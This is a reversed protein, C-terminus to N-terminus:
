VDRERQEGSERLICSVPQNRMIGGVCKRNCYTCYRIQDERGTRVKEPWMPDAILQRSLGVFGFGEELLEEAFGAHQIKGVLCVPRVACALVAEGLRRFCGEGPLLPHGAAPITDKLNSHNAIAVHFGDAGAEELARVFRPVQRILVGGRGLAPEETRVTLKYDVALSPAAEKVARVVAAPFATLEGYRDSRHNFISSSFSGLLRDGHIQVMRFGATAANVAARAFMAIIEETRETTLSDCYTDVNEAMRRRVEEGGLSMRQRFLSGVYELDYEQFFLQPAAECGQERCIGLIQRFYPFFKESDLSPAGLMSPQASVDPLIVLGAGGEAVERYFDTGREGLSTPAFVIRNKLEVSGIKGPAFLRDM